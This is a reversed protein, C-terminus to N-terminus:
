IPASTESEHAWKTFSGIMRKTKGRKDKKEGVGKKKKKTKQVKQRERRKNITPQKRKSVPILFHDIM